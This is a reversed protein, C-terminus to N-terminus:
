DPYGLNVCRLMQQNKEEVQQHRGKLKWSFSPKM